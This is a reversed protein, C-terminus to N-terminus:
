KLTAIYAAIADIERDTLVGKYTPMVPQYGAVVKANPELISERIYAEDVQATSGDALAEGKGFVGKWSPGVLKTGDISHCANCGRKTYLIAGFEAPTKGKGPDSANALWEEYADPEMVKVATLMYSHNTGCYQTCEVPFVGTRTAQFWLSHYRNPIVDAKTRFAPIFFGHIVDRSTMLLKVPTNVPVVLTDNVAGSPYTFSWSWKQGMVNVQLADAPPVRMHLYGKMGIFFLIMVIILPIITWSLELPLNHTIQASAMQDPRKRVYKIMFVVILGCILVFFFVSIWYYLRFAPDVVDVFTSAKEPLWFTKGNNDM